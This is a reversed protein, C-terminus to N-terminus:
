RTIIDVKSSCAHVHLSCVKSNLREVFVACTCLAATDPLGCGQVLVALTNGAVDVAASPECATGTVETDTAADATPPSTHAHEQQAQSAFAAVMRQKASAIFRQLMEQQTLPMDGPSSGSSM